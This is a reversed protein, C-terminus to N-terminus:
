PTSTSAEASAGDTSPTDGTRTPSGNPSASSPTTPRLGWSEMLYYIIPLVQRQLDLPHEEDLLRQKLREGEAGPVLIALMEGLGALTAEINDMPQALLPQLEVYKTAFRKLVVPSIIAPASFVDDDAPGVRFRVPEMPITFDRVASAPPHPQTM